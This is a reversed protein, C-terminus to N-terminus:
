QYDVMLTAMASFDGGSLVAGARKVPVAQLTPTKPYTFDIWENVALANNNAKFAIGLDTESTQLAGPPFTTSLGQIKLKMAANSGKCELEFKVDQIYNNGGIRPVIVEGFNVEIMQGGHIVCPSVVVSVGVSILSNAQAPVATLIFVGFGALWVSARRQKMIYAM